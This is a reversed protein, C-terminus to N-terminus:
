QRGGLLEGVDVLWSLQAALAYGDPFSTGPPNAGPWHDRRYSIKALGDRSLRFGLGLEGDLVTKDSGIWSAQNIPAIFAYRNREFRGAVFLRPTLTVRTELYWGLGTVDDALTPVQYSSWMLESWTELHGRSFRAEAALITETFDSRRSNTPMDADVTSGLYPGHTGSVGLRLEPGIRLGLAAAPRLYKGPEPLYRENVAPLNVLAVRYDFQGAVGFLQVGWPYQTPYTDPTGIVPNSNPFRRRAFGGIPLVMRGGEIGLYSAPQYSAVLEEVSHEFDEEEVKGVELEALARLELTSTPRLVGFAQVIGEVAPDGHNLALLRSGADTRFVEATTLLELAATQAALPAAGAIAWAAWLARTALQRVPPRGSKPM